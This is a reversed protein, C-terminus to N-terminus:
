CTCKGTNVSVPSGTCLAADSVIEPRYKRPKLRMNCDLRRKERRCAHAGIGFMERLPRGPLSTLPLPGIVM